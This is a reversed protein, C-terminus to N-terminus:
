DAPCRGGLRHSIQAATRRVLDGLGPLLEHTIRV